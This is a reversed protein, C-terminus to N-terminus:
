APLLMKDVADRTATCDGDPHVVEGSGVGDPSKLKARSETDHQLV